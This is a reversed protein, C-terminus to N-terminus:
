KSKDCCGAIGRSHRMVVVSVPVVVAMVMTVAPFAMRGTLSVIMPMIMGAMGVGM